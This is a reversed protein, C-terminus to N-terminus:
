MSLLLHADVMENQKDLCGIFGELFTRLLTRLLLFNISGM